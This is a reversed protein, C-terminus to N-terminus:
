NNLGKSVVVWPSLVFAFLFITKSSFIKALKKDETTDSVIRAAFPYFLLCVLVYITILIYYGSFPNVKFFETMLLYYGLVHVIGIILLLIFETVSQNKISVM